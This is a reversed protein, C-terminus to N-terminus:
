KSMISKIILASTFTVLFYYSSYPRGNNTPAPAATVAKDNELIQANEAFTKARVRGYEAALREITKDDPYIIYDDM